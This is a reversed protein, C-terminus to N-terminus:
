VKRQGQLTRAQRTVRIFLLPAETIETNKNGQYVTYLRYVKQTHRVAVTRDSSGKPSMVWRMAFTNM